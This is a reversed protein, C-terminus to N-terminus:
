MRKFRLILAVNVSGEYPPHSPCSMYCACVLDSIWLVKSFRFPLSWESSRPTSPLIANVNIKPFNPTFTHVLNMQSLIHVLPPSNHVCYHVKPNWLLCPIEQTAWHSCLEECMRMNDRTQKKTNKNCKMYFSLLSVNQSFANSSLVSLNSM